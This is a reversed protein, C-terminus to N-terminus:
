EIPTAAVAKVGAGKLSIPAHERSSGSGFSAGSVILDFQGRKIDGPKIVGGRFGTLCQEGLTEEDFYFVWRSPIIEDTSVNTALQDQTVRDINRGELQQKVIDPDQTLWLVRRNLTIESEPNIHPNHEFNEQM